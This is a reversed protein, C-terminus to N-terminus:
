LGPPCLCPVTSRLYTRRSTITVILFSPQKVTTCCIGLRKGCRQSLVSAEYYSFDRYRDTRQERIQAARKRDEDIIRIAEEEEGLEEISSGAKVGQAMSPPVGLDRDRVFEHHFHSCRESLRSLTRSVEPSLAEAEIAGESIDDERALDALM